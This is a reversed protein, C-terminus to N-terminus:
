RLRVGLLAGAATVGGLLQGLPLRLGLLRLGLLLRV